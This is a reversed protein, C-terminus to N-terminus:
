TKGTNGEDVTLKQNASDLTVVREVDGKTVTIIVERSYRSDYANDAFLTMAGTPIRLKGSYWTAKVFTNRKGILKALSYPVEKRGWLVFSRRVIGDIERLFLQNDKVEWTAVYGRKCEDKSVLKPRKKRLTTWYLELPNTCLDYYEKHYLIRDPIQAAM